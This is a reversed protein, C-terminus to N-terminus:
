ANSIFYKLHNKKECEYYTYLRISPLYGFILNERTVDPKRFFFFFFTRPFLDRVRWNRCLLFFFDTRARGHLFKYWVRHTTRRNFFKLCARVNKSLLDYFLPVSISIIGAAAHSSYEFARLFSDYPDTTFLFIFFLYITYGRRVYILYM